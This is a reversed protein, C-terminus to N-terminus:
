HKAQKINSNCAKRFVHTIKDHGYRQLMYMVHIDSPFHHKIHQACAYCVKHFSSSSGTQRDAWGCPVVPSQLISKWSIYKQIKVSIMYMYVLAVLWFVQRFMPINMIVSCHLYVPLAYLFIHYPKGFFWGLDSARHFTQYSEPYPCTAPEKSHPLSGKPEM